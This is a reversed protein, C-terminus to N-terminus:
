HRGRFGPPGGAVEVDATPAATTAHRSRRDRRWRAALAGGQVLVVAIEALAVGATAGTVGHEPALLSIAVGGVVNSAVASVAVWGSMKLPVLHHFGLTTGLAICVIAVALFLVASSPVRIEGAFLVRLLLDASVVYGVALVVGTGVTVLLATRRRQAASPSPESVWGQFALGVPGLAFVAFKTIRDLAAYEAVVGPTVLALLTIPLITFLAGLVAVGAATWQTRVTRVTVRLPSEGTPQWYRRTAVLLCASSSLLLVVPYVWAVALQAVLVAALGTAAVRPVTDLAAIAAPRGTGVFYWTPALGLMAAALAMLAADVRVAPPALAAAIAMGTPAALGFVVLRSVLSESYLVKERTRDEAVLSPGVVTWGLLVLTAAGTGVSQGIAIGAWAETGVHRLLVPLVLFPAVASILPLGLFGALRRIPIRSLRGPRAAGTPDPTM